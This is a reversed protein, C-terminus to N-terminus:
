PPFAPGDRTRGLTSRNDEAGNEPPALLARVRRGVCSHLLERMLWAIPDTCVTSLDALNALDRETPKRAHTIADLSSRCWRVLPSAGGVVQLERSARHEDSRLARRRLLVVASSHTM